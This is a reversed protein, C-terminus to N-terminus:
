DGEPTMHRMDHYITFFLMERITLKGMIPHPLAYQDLEHEEWNKLAAILEGSVKRWQELLKAQAAALDINANSTAPLFRGSAQAGKALQQVYARKVEEFSRSPEPPTGFMLRLTVKPLRMAKAVPKVSKILHELNEALSWADATRQHLGEPSQSGFFTGVDRHTEDLTSLISERTFIAVTSNM